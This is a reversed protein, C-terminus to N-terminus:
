AVGAAVVAGLAASGLAWGVLGGGGACGAATDLGLVGLGGATLFLPPPMMRSVGNQPGSRRAARASRAGSGRLVPSTEARCFGASRHYPPAAREGPSGCRLFGRMFEREWAPTAPAREASASSATRAPGRGAKACPAGGGPSETVAM